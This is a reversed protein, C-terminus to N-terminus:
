PQDKPEQMRARLFRGGSDTLRSRDVLKATFQFDEDIRVILLQEFDGQRKVLVHDNGKEPSITKVEVLKGAIIGDSGAQHSGHRRLGFKLEAYIEGLEGWVQLYRGTNNVHREACDM